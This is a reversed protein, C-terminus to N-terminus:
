SNVTSTPATAGTMPQPGTPALSGTGSRLACTAASTNSSIWADAAPTRQPHRPDRRLCGRHRDVTPQRGPLDRDAHRLSMPCASRGRWAAAGSHTSTTCWARAGGGRDADTRGLISGGDPQGTTRRTVVMVSDVTSPCMKQRAAPTATPCGRRIGRDRQDKGDAARGRDVTARLQGDGASTAARLRRRARRRRTVPRVVLAASARCSGGVSAPFGLRLCSRSARRHAVVSGARDRRHSGARNTPSAAVEDTVERNAGSRNARTGRRDTAARGDGPDTAECKLAGPQGGWERRAACWELHPRLERQRVGCPAHSSRARRCSYSLGEHRTQRAIAALPESM